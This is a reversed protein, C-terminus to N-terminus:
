AADGFIDWVAAADPAAALKERFSSRAFAGALSALIQLSAEAAEGPALLVFVLSVPKGDPAAFDLPEALRIFAGVAEKLGEIRGHPIAVGQGFGTSGLKERALLTEFVLAQEIGYTAAFLQGAEELLRKKSCAELDLVIRSPSLITNIPNM